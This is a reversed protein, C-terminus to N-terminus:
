WGLDDEREQKSFSSGKSYPTQTTAKKILEVYDIAVSIGSRKVGDKEWSDMILKGEVKVEDGKKISAIDGTCNRFAKINFIMNPRWNGESDKGASQTVAFTVVKGEKPDALVKGVLVVNNKTKDRKINPQM